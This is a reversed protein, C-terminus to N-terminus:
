EEVILKGEFYFGEGDCQIMGDYEYVFISMLEGNIDYGDDDIDSTPLQNCLIFKTQELHKLVKKKNSSFLRPKGISEQFEEIEDEALGDSDGLKNVEVLIPLKGDKYNLEFNTWDKSDSENPDLNSNVSYGLSNIRDLIQKISPKIESKCFVRTFYGM